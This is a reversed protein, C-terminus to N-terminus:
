CGCGCGGDSECSDDHSGCGGHGHIHGHQLEEETAERVDTIKGSFFLNMGALPHNFDLQVKEAGVELVKGNYMNGQADQMPIYGGIVLMKDNVQGKEDKFTDLPMEVKADNNYEGYAQASTLPFQFDKGASLGAINDEFDKLLSGAGFIFQMANQEEIKEILEGEANDKRLEYILSVACDKKIEM